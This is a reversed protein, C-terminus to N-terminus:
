RGFRFWVRYRLKRMYRSRIARMRTMADMIAEGHGGSVEDMLLVADERCLGAKVATKALRLQDVRIRRPGQGSRARAPDIIMARPTPSGECVMLNRASLDGHTFGHEHMRRVLRGVEILTQKDKSTLRGGSATKEVLWVHFNPADPIWRTMLFSRRPLGWKSESGWAVAEPVDLGAQKMEVLHRYETHICWRQVWRSIKRILPIRMGKIFLTQGDVEIPGKGRWEGDGIPVRSWAREFAASPDDDPLPLSEPLREPQLVGLEYHAM